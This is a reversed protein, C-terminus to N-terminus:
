DLFVLKKIKLRLPDIIKAYATYYWIDQKYATIIILKL